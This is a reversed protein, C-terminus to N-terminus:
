QVDEFILPAVTGDVFRLRRYRTRLCKLELLRVEDGDGDGDKDVWADVDDVVCDGPENDVCIKADDLWGDAPGTAALEGFALAAKGNGCSAFRWYRWWGHGRVDRAEVVIPDRDHL